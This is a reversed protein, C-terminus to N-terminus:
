PAAEVACGQNSATHCVKRSEIWKLLDAKPIRLATDTVRIAFGWVGSGIFRYALSRSICAMESAQAVTLLVANEQM